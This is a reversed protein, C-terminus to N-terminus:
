LSHKTVFDYGERSLKYHTLNEVKLKDVLGIAELEHIISVVEKRKELKTLEQVTKIALGDNHHHEYFLSMINVLNFSAKIAKHQETEQHSATTVINTDNSSLIRKIEKTVELFLEDREGEDLITLPTTPPNITQFRSLEDIETFMCHSVIIPFIHAGDNEAATLLAPLEENNIFESSLFNASVMLIAIKSTQIAKNIEERWDDGVKIESDDWITFQYERELVTLHVRLYDLWKRDKKSYSIFVGKRSM